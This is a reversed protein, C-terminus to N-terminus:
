AITAALRRNYAAIFDHAAREGGIGVWDAKYGRVDVHIWEGDPYVPSSGKPYYGFGGRLPAKDTLKATVALPADSFAFDLADGHVHQSNRVAGETNENTKERRYGSHGVIYGRYGLRHHAESIEWLVQLLLPAIAVVGGNMSVDRDRLAYCAAIYGDPDVRPPLMRGDPGVRPGQFWRFRRVTREDLWGVTLYRDTPAEWWPISQAQAQGGTLALALAGLTGSLFRGRSITRTDCHGCM